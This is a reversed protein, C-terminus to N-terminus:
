RELVLPLRDVGLVGGTHYEYPRGAQPRIVSFRSLFAELVIRIERKALHVGLCTHPGTAFTISRAGRNIDIRHPDKYVRPDRAALYTPLLVVDNKRLRVGHFDFDETVRRHPAAVAFARTFEEVAKPIDRPNSRLHEQLPLDSSLHRMIWGLTSYVTDLGAVYFLFCTGLIELESLPRGQITGQLLADLFETRESRERQEAVFGYLYQFILRAAEQTKAYDAQDGARLLQHEWELFQPLQEQPMGMLSLFISNPFIEAFEGIFEFNGPDAIKDILRDCTEQVMDGYTNVHTPTFFPQLLLRYHQHEPPDVEVPIMRVMDGLVDGTSSDRTSSFHGYDQFADRILDHRTLVWGSKGLSAESAWIIGPGDHLRAAAIFPDDLESAFANLKHDWVLEDPVHDPINRVQANSDLM